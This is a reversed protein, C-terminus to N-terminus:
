EDQESVMAACRRSESSGTTGPRNLFKDQRDAPARFTAGNRHTLTAAAGGTQNNIWSSAELDWRDPRGFQDIFRYSHLIYTKCASMALSAELFDRNEYICFYGIRCKKARAQAASASGRRHLTMTLGPELQIQNPGARDSGPNAALNARVQRELAADSATSAAQAAGAGALSLALAVAITTVTSSVRSM